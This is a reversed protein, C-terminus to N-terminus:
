SWVEFDGVADDETFACASLAILAIAAVHRM